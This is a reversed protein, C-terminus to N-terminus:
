LKKAVVEKPKAKFSCTKVCINLPKSNQHICDKCFTQVYGFTPDNNVRKEYSKLQHILTAQVAKLIEKSEFPDSSFTEVELKNTHKKIKCRLNLDVSPFYVGEHFLQNALPTKPYILYSESIHNFRMGHFEHNLSFHSDFGKKPRISYKLIKNIFQM